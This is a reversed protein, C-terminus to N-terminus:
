TQTAFQVRKAGPGGMAGGVSKRGKGKRPAKGLAAAKEDSATRKSKIKEKAEDKKKNKERERAEDEKLRAERITEM